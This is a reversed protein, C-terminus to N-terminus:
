LSPLRPHRVKAGSRRVTAETLGGNPPFFFFFLDPTTRASAEWCSYYSWIGVTKTEKKNPPTSFHSLLYERRNCANVRSEQSDAVVSQLATGMNRRATNATVAIAPHSGGAVLSRYSPDRDTAPPAPAGRTRFAPQKALTFPTQRLQAGLRPESSFLLKLPMSFLSRPPTAYLVCVRRLLPMSNPPPPPFVNQGLLCCPCCSTM